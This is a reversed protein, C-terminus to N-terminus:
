LITRIQIIITKRPAADAAAHITDATAGATIWQRADKIGAPPTIIRVDRCYAMLNQALREAGAFGPTDNDAIIIIHKPRHERVLSTIISIGGTCSPRGIVSQIGVGHLAIADSAGEVIYLMKGPCSNWDVARFVGEHGGTVSFKVGDPKRLRMGTIRGINDVMPFSFARYAGAFGVRFATLSQPPVGLDCALWELQDLTLAQAWRAAMSAFEALPVNAPQITITRAYPRRWTDAERLVHLWADNRTHCKAGDSVKTCIVITGDVAYSCFKKRGCIPCRHQPTCRKLQHEFM